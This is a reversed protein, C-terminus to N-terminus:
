RKSIRQFVADASDATIKGAQHADIRREAEEAWLADTRRNATKDLSRYLAEILEAREVADLRMAQQLITQTETTM